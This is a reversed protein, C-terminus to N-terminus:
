EQGAGSFRSLLARTWAAAEIDTELVHAALRVVLGLTATLQPDVVPELAHQIEVMALAHELNQCAYL